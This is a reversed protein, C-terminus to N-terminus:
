AGDHVERQAVSQRSAVVGGRGGDGVVPVGRTRLGEGLFGEIAEGGGPRGGRGACGAPVFAESCSSARGM